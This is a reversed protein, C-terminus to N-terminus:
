AARRRRLGRAELARALDSISIFGVLRRGDLVVGRSVDSESLEALAHVAKEEEQLVPVRESPVM